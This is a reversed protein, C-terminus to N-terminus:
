PAQTLLSGGFRMLGTAVSPKNNIMGAKTKMPKADVDVINIMPNNIKAMQLYKKLNNRRIEVFM